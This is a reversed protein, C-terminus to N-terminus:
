QESRLGRILISVVVLIIFIGTVNLRRNLLLQGAHCLWLGLRLLGECGDSSAEITDEEHLSDLGNFRELKDGLGTLIGLVARIRHLALGLVDVAQRRDKIRVLRCVLTNFAYGAGHHLRM